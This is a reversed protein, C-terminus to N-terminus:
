GSTSPALNPVSLTGSIAVINGTVEAGTLSATGSPGLDSQLQGKVAVDGAISAGDGLTTTGTLGLRGGDATEFKGHIRPSDALVQGTVDVSGEIVAQDLALPPDGDVNSGLYLSGTPDARFTGTSASPSDARPGLYIFGTGSDVTGENVFPASLWAGSGEDALLQGEPHIIEVGPDTGAFDVPGGGDVARHVGHVDLRADDELFLEGRQALEGFVQMHAQDQLAAEGIEVVEGAPVTVTLSDGIRAAALTGDTLVLEGGGLFTPARNESPEFDVLTSDAVPVTNGDPVTIHDVWTVQDLRAGTRLETYAVNFLGPGSAGTFTGTSFEDPGAEPGAGFMMLEQGATVTVEGHNAFGGQVTAHSDSADLTLSGTDTITFLGPEDSGFTDVGFSDITAGDALVADGRVNLRSGDWVYLDGDVVAGPSLEVVASGLLTLWPGGISGTVTTTGPGILEGVDGVLEAVDFSTGVTLTGILTVTAGDADIVDAAADTTFTVLPGEVGGPICVVSTATPVENTWNASDAWSTSGGETAPGVWTTDPAECGTAADAPTAALGVLTTSVLLLGAAHTVRMRM